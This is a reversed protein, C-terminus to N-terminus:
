RERETDSAGARASASAAAASPAAARGDSLMTVWGTGTSGGACAAGMVCGCRSSHLLAPAAVLLSACLLPAAEDSGAEAIALPPRM